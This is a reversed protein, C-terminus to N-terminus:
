PWEAEVTALPDPDLGPPVLRRHLKEARHAWGHDVGEVHDPGREVAADVLEAIVAGWLPYLPVSVGAGLFAVAREPPLGQLYDDSVGPTV